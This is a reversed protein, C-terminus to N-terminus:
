IKISSFHCEYLLHTIHDPFVLIVHQLGVWSVKLFLWMINVTVLCRYPLLLLAVLERKRKLIVTFSSHVCLIVFCFLSLYLIGVFLPFNM